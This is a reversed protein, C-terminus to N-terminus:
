ACFNYNWNMDPYKKKLEVVMQGLEKNHRVVVQRMKLESSFDKPDYKYGEMQLMVKLLFQGHLYKGTHEPYLEKYIDKMLANRYRLRDELHSINPLSAGTYRHYLLNIDCFHSSYRGRKIIMRLVERTVQHPNIGRRKMIEELYQTFGESFTRNQKGQYCAMTEELTDKHDIGPKVVPENLTFIDILSLTEYCLPCSKSSQLVLAKCSPCVAHREKDNKLVPSYKGVLSTLKNRSVYESLQYIDNMTIIGLLAVFNSYMAEIRDIQSLIIDREKTAESVESKDDVNDIIWELGRLRMEIEILRTEIDKDYITKVERVLKALPNNKSLKASRLNPSCSPTLTRKTKSAQM